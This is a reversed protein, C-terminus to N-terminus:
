EGATHGYLGKLVWALANTASNGIYAAQWETQLKSVSHSWGSTPFRIERSRIQAQLYSRWLTVLLSLYKARNLTFFQCLRVPMICSSHTCIFCETWLFKQLVVAIITIIISRYFIIIIISVEFIRKSQWPKVAMSARAM